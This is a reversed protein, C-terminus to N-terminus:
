NLNNTRSSVKCHPSVYLCYLCFSGASNAFVTVKNPDGPPVLYHNAPQLAPLASCCHLATCHLTSHCGGGFQLINEQVWRLAM